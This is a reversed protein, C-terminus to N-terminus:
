VKEQVEITSPTGASVLLIAPTEVIAPIKATVPRGEATVDNFVDVLRIM